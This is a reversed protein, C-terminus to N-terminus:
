RADFILDPSTMTLELDKLKPPHFHFVVLLQKNLRDGDHVTFPPVLEAGWSLV